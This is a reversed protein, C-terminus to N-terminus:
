LLLHLCLTLVIMGNLEVQIAELLQYYLASILPLFLHVITEGQCKRSVFFFFVAYLSPNNM